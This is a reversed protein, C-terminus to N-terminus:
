RREVRRLGDNAAHGRCPVGNRPRKRPRPMAGPMAGWAAIALMRDCRRSMVTLSSRASCLRSSSSYRREETNFLEKGPTMSNAIPSGIGGRRVESRIDRGAALSRAHQTSLWNPIPGLRLSLTIAPRLHQKQLSAASISLTDREVISRRRRSQLNGTTPREKRPRTSM